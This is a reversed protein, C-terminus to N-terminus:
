DMQREHQNTRNVRALEELQLVDSLPILRIGKNKLLPLQANLYELTQPYPHGIGVAFGYKKSMRLLRNFQADIQSQDTDHDLFVNRKTSLVGKQRAISRAKSYRTTRSDVFFLNHQQLFDMTTSMPLTLQTLKSGMHNNVGVAHPVTNLADRLVKHITNPHMNATLSGPGLRKGALSEMPIHLMVERKQEAARHSYVTSLPKHPLISFAVEVPLAFAQADRQRNGMDDIILAIDAASLSFCGFM